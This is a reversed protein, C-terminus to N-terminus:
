RELFLCFGFRLSGSAIIANEGFSPTHSLSWNVPDTVSGNGTANTWYNDAAMAAPATLIAMLSLAFSAGQWLLAPDTAALHVYAWLLKFYLEPVYVVYGIWITPSRM